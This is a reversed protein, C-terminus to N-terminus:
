TKVDAATVDRKNHMVRVILLEKPSPEYFILYSGVPFSRVKPAIEPRLRGALPNSTLMGFAATIRDIVASAANPQHAAIYSWIADLDARAKPHIRRRDAM